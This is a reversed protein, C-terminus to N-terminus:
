KLPPGTKDVVLAFEENSLVRTPELHGEEQAVRMKEFVLLVPLKKALDESSKAITVEVRMKGTPCQFNVHFHPESKANKAPDGTRTVYVGDDGVGLEIRAWEQMDYLDNWEARTLESVREVHRKSPMILQCEQGSRPAMENVWLRWSDNEHVVKNVTLDITCFPCLGAQLNAVKRCYYFFNSVNFLQWTDESRVGPVSFAPYM